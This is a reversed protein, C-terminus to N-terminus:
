KFGGSGWGSKRMTTASRRLSEVWVSDDLMDRVVSPDVASGRRGLSTGDDGDGGVGDGAGLGSGAGEMEFSFTSTQSQRGSQSAAPAAAQRSFSSARPGALPHGYANDLSSLDAGLGSAWSQHHAKGRSSSPSLLSGSDSGFVPAAASSKARSRSAAPQQKQKQAGQQQDPSRQMNNNNNNNDDDDDKHEENDVLIEPIDLQPIATMRGARKSEMHRKFQRSYYVTDFFGLVVRRRVEEEVRQLRLKRRLFEELRSIV